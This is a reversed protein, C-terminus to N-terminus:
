KPLSLSVVLLTSISSPHTPTERVAFNDRAHPRAHNTKGDVDQAGDPAASSGRRSLAYQCTGAVFHVYMCLVDPNFESLYRVQRAMSKEQGGAQRNM